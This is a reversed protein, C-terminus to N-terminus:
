HSGMQSRIHLIAKLVQYAALVGISLAGLILVSAVIRSTRSLKQQAAVKFSNIAFSIFVTALFGQLLIWALSQNMSALTRAPGSSPGWYGFDTGATVAAWSLAYLVGVIFLTRGLWPPALAGRGGAGWKFQGDKKFILRIAWASWIVAWIIPVFKILEM